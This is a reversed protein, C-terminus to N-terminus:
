KKEANMLEVRTFLSPRFLFLRGDSKANDRPSFSMWETVKQMFVDVIKKNQELKTMTALLKMTLQPIPDLKGLNSKSSSSSAAPAEIENGNLYNELLNFCRDLSDPKM